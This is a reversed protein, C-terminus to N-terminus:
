LLIAKMNVSYGVADLRKALKFKWVGESDVPTYIIGDLDGPKEVGSEMLLFVHARDLKGIFYGMEFVVNQRARAKPDAKYDKEKSEREMDRKSVGMDDATLLIIAFGIDSANTEFKEIITNGYDEQEHLIIAKLGMQELTRAVGIKLADNHGHVIFVKKMDITATNDVQSSTSSEAKPLLPLKEILIELVAIKKNIRDHYDEMVDEDGTFIMRAGANDYERQYENNPYDFAQKLLESNYDSWKNYERKFNNIEEKNYQREEPSVYGGGYAGYGRMGHPSANRTVKIDFLKRGLAIRQELSQRFDESSMMLVAKRPEDVTSNKKTM